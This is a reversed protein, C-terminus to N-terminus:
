KRWLEFDKGTRRELSQMERRMVGELEVGKHAIEIVLAKFAQEDFPRSECIAMQMDRFQNIQQATEHSFPSQINFVERVVANYSRESSMDKHVVVVQEGEWELSTVSENKISQAVFPSHSSVVFQINPFLAHLSPLITRQWSPHLHLDVEDLLVVGTIANANNLDGGKEVIRIIMDFLWIFTSKFGESLGEIPMRSTPMKSGSSTDFYLSSADFATLSVKKEFDAKELVANILQQIAAFHQSVYAFNVSVKIHKLYGNEGFLTAVPEIEPHPRPDELKIHRNAGYALFLFKDEIAQLQEAGEICSITDKNNIEFRLHIPKDDALIDLEFWGQDHGSKVVQKWSYPFPVIAIGTLGLAILQLITTKGRANSGIILEMSNSANFDIQIEDFCKVQGIKLTCVKIKKFENIPKSAITTPNQNQWWIKFLGSNFSYSDDQNNIFGEHTLVRLISPYQEEVACRQALAVITNLAIKAQNSLVDLLQKVFNYTQEGFLNKISSYWNEFVDQHRINLLQLFANDIENNTITTIDEDIAIIAIERFFLQLHFPILWRIKELLYEIQVTTMQVNVNVSLQQIFLTAEKKTLPPIDITLLDNSINTLNLETRLPTLSPSGVFIFQIHNFAPDQRIDKLRQLFQITNAGGRTQHINLIAQPFEDIIFVLQQKNKITQLAHIFEKRYNDPTQTSKFSIANLCREYFSNRRDVSSVDVYVLSFNEKPNECLHRLLSTRGSRRPASLLIHEGNDIAQWLKKITKPREFFDDGRVVSGVINRM